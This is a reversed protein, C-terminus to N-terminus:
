KSMFQQTWYPTGYADVTYGIGIETFNLNLINKKHEDSNMWARMAAEPTAQGKAINEGATKYELGFERIMQFPSGYGPSNHDFYTSDRMDESKVRAINSLEESLKLMPLGRSAREKNVLQAIEMEYSHSGDKSVVGANRNKRIAAHPNATGDGMDAVSAGVKGNSAYPIYVSDRPYILSPDTFQPNAEIVDFLTINHRKSIKWLSDEKEVEYVGQHAAAAEAPVALSISLAAALAPAIIRKMNMANMIGKM